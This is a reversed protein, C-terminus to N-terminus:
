ANNMEIFAEIRTTLQGRMSRSYDRELNLVSLGRENLMSKFELRHHGVLDCFKLIHNIVATTHLDKGKKEIFNIYPNLSQNEASFHLSAQKRLMRKALFSCLTLINTLDEEKLVEGANGAKGIWSLDKEIWGGCEEIIEMIPDGIFSPAGTFLVPVADKLNQANNNGIQLPNSILSKLNELIEKQPGWLM